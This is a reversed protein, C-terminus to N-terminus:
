SLSGGPLLNRDGREIVLSSNKSGFALCNALAYRVPREVAHNPTYDLDCTPDPNEYNITPAIVGETLALVSAALGAAGCAGQPHGIMSKTASMPVTRAHEGLALKVAATEVTDNLQTSTGHLNVYDMDTAELRASAIALEMARAPEVGDPKMMVRHYADCTSGYGRVIGYIKAGRAEAREWSELVYMWSGEGLVFGDRDSNFPRSARAPTDNFASSTIQMRDFGAMIGHTICAEAGGTLVCDAEGNKIAKYAYGIADTSSTCGTSIVHTMGRLGFYISIESSLMGVFSSSIAYPTVRKGEGKFYMTYQKEAFDAGGAGTGVIVHIQRKQDDSMAEPDISADAFAERAASIAMPVVRPVRQSEIKDFIALPDLGRVEGVVRSRLGDSDFLSIGSLGSRGERLASYFPIKGIGFPSAIGIGTIVASRPDLRAPAPAPM